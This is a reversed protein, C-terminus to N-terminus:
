QAFAPRSQCVAAPCYRDVHTTGDNDRLRPQIVHRQYQGGEKETLRKLDKDYLRSSVEQAFSVFTEYQDIISHSQEIRLVNAIATPTEPWTNLLRYRFYDGISKDKRRGSEKSITESFRQWTTRDENLVSTHYAVFALIGRRYQQRVTEYYLKQAELGSGKHELAIRLQVSWMSEGYVDTVETLLGIAERYLGSACLQDLGSAKNRFDKILDMQQIIRAILWTLEKPLPMIPGEIVGNLYDFGVPGESGNPFEALFQRSQWSLFDAYESIDLAARAKMLARRMNTRYSLLAPTAGAQEFGKQRRQAFAGRVLTQQDTFIRARIPTLTVDHPM